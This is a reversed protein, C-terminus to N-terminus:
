VYRCWWWTSSGMVGSWGAGIVVLQRSCEVHNLSILTYGPASLKDIHKHEDLEEGKCRRKDQNGRKNPKM